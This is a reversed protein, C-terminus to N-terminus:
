FEKFQCLFKKYDMDHNYVGWIKSKQVITEAWKSHPRVENMKNQYNSRIVGNTESNLISLADSYEENTVVNISNAVLVQNPHIITKGFLGNQKDLKAEKIFCNLNAESSFDFYENVVSSIIYDDRKFINIIDSICDRIPLIDYITSEVDRRLGFIGSFDTGGLRLNLIMDKYKEMIDKIFILERQSTEKYIIRKSEFIPMAYFTKDETNYSSILSLYKEANCSDFKPLIFGCLIKSSDLNLFRKIHEINRVRIFILPLDDLSLLQSNVLRFLENLTEETNREADDLLNDSVSDELCISISNCGLSKQKLITTSLNNRNGSM